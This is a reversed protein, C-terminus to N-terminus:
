KKNIEQFSDLLLQYGNLNFHLDYTKEDEGLLREGVWRKLRGKIIVELGAANTEVNDVYFTSSIKGTEIVSADTELRKSFTSYFEPAVFTLIEKNSGKVNGPTINLRENALMIAIAELYSSSVGDNSVSAQQKLGAPILVIDKHGSQHWLLTGLVLNCFILAAVTIGLIRNRDSLKAILSRAHSYEM